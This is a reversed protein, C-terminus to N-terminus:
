EDHAILIWKIDKEKNYSARELKREVVDDVARNMAQVGYLPNRWIVYSCGVLWGNGTPYVKCLRKADAATSNTCSASIPLTVRTAPTRGPLRDAANAAAETAKSDAPRRM